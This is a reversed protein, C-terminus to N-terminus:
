SRVGANMFYNYDGYRSSYEQTAVGSFVTGTVTAGAAQLRRATLQTADQRSVDRMVCLLTADAAAGVTLTEAASLVPATDIVVYRYRKCAENMFRNFAEPGITRHPSTKLLGAPLLHFREGLSTDVADSLSTTGDLVSCLGPGMELGFLRHQDPCRLDADVLLVTEATANAISLALQSAVSSKGEGSVSSVVAISRVHKWDTSLLLNARLSDVSEEFVRRAKSNKNGTPLKAVEGMVDLHGVATSHTVRHVRVEWLLGFLFPIMMAGLGFVAMKKLPIPEVPTRPPTAKAISRVAGDQRRETRIAAVRDRLKRLVDNAVSLEEQAFQLEATAGGFQELRMREAEYQNQLVSLRSQLQQRNKKESVKKLRVGIEKQRIQESQAFKLEDAALQELKATAAERAVEQAKKLVEEWESIRALNENYYERRIRVLDNQEMDLSIKKYRAIRSKAELVEPDANVLAMINAESPKRAASLATEALIEAEPEFDSGEKDHMALQADMVALQVNLDAIEDRLRAMLSLNSDSELSAANEGPAYGLTQKSLSQVLRQRETVEQKWRQIEPELWRELNNVRSNDFSDRQRLYSEVIANCILAAAEPDTDEYSVILRAATGASAVTLNKRMAAEAKGPDSLSPAIRFEPDSLVPDLIIPNFFLPKETRALDNITPMVGKFVVFDENAELLHSARYTPVFTRNVYYVSFGGLLIGLPLAWFWCRRFTVWLIWPDFAAAADKPPTSVTRSPVAKTTEERAHPSTKTLQQTDNM